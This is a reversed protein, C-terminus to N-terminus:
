RVSEAFCTKAFSECHNKLKQVLFDACTVEPFFLLHSGCMCECDSAGFGVLPVTAGEISKLYGNVDCEMNEKSQAAVVAEIKVHENALLYDIHWFLRKNKRLHRQIRNRINTAGKGLASGVYTYHGKPFNQKGLKGVSVTVDKPVFLVLAYVGRLYKLNDVDM